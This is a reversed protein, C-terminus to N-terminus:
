FLPHLNHAMLMGQSVVLKFGSIESIDFDLGKVPIAEIIFFAQDRKNAVPSSYDELHFSDQFAKEKSM